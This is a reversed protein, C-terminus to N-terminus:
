DVLAGDVVARLILPIAIQSAAFALVAAIAFALQRRYPSIFHWFRRLIRGDFDAFILEETDVQSGVVARPPRSAAAAGPPMARM